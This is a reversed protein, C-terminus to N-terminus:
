VKIGVIYKKVKHALLFDVRGGIEVEPHIEGGLEEM